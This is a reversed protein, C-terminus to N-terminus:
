RGLGLLRRWLPTSHRGPATLLAYGRDAPVVSGDIEGLFQALEKDNRWPARYTQDAMLEHAISLNRSVDEHNIFSATQAITLQSRILSWTVHGKADATGGYGFRVLRSSHEVHEHGYGRFRSDFYGAKELAEASFASCQASVVNALIPSEPSGIGSLFYPQLWDGAYNAHGFKQAAEIWPLEWGVGTPFTDDELLITVDCRLRANLLYLARNKNWAVGMNTGTIYPVGMLRLLDQTQDISGDDAVVLMSPVHRTLRRVAEVTERVIARRNYTVIGIGLTLM